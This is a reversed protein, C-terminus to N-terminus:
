YGIPLDQCLACAVRGEDECPCERESMLDEQHREHASDILDAMADAMEEDTPDRELKEALKYYIEKSM